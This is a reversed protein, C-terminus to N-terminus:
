IITRNKTNQPVEICNEMIALLKGEWLSLVLLGKEKDQWCKIDKTKKSGDNKYTQLSVENHLTNIQM